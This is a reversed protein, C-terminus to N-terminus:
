DRKRAPKHPRQWLDDGEIRRHIVESSVSFGGAIHKEIFARLSEDSARLGEDEIRAICKDLAERLERPPVLVHGAFFNAQWELWAYQQTPISRVAQKWESISDVRLRSFFEAHLEIHALEHAISFRYRNTQREQADRDVSIQTLSSSVFADIGDDGDQSFFTTLEPLPVINIRLKVDIIEEIPVPITRSSHHKTLFSDARQALQDRSLFAVEIAGDGM